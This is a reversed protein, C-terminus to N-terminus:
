ETKGGGDAAAAAAGSGASGGAAAGDASAGAAGGGGASSSGGRRKKSARRVEGTRSSAKETITAVAPPGPSPPLLGTLRPRPPPCRAVAPVAHRGTARPARPLSGRLREAPGTGRGKTEFRPSPAHAERGEWGHKHLEHRGAMLLHRRMHVDGAHRAPRVPPGRPPAPALTRVRPARRANTHTSTNFSLTHAHACPQGSLRLSRTCGLDLRERGRPGGVGVPVLPRRGRGPAPRAPRPPARARMRAQAGVQCREMELWGEPNALAPWTRVAVHAGVVFQWAQMAARRRAAGRPPPGPPPTLPPAGGRGSRERWFARAEWFSRNVGCAGWGRGGGQGGKWGGGVRRAVGLGGGAWGGLGVL